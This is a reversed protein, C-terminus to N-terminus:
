TEKKVAATILQSQVLILSKKKEECHPSLKKYITTVSWTVVLLSAAACVTSIQKKQEEQWKIQIHKQVEHKQGTNSKPCCITSATKKPRKPWSRTGTYIHTYIFMYTRAHTIYSLKNEANGAGVNRYNYMYFRNNLFLHLLSIRIM